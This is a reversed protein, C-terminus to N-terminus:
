YGAADEAFDAGTGGRNESRAHVRGDPPPQSSNGRNALRQGQQSRVTWHEAACDGPQVNGPQVNGPQVTGPQVNGPQHGALDVAPVSPNGADETPGVLSGPTGPEGPTASDSGRADQHDGPPVQQGADALQRADAADVGPSAHVSSWRAARRSM